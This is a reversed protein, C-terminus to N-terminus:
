SRKEIRDSKRRDPTTKAELVWRAVYEEKKKKEDETKKERALIVRTKREDEEPIDVLGFTIGNTTCVAVYKTRTLTAYTVVQSVPNFVPNFQDSRIYTLLDENEPPDSVLKARPCLVDPKIEVIVRACFQLMSMNPLTKPTSDDIPDFTPFPYQLPFEEDTASSSRMWSEIIRDVLFFQDYQPAMKVFAHQEKDTSVTTNLYKSAPYREENNFQRGMVNRLVTWVSNSLLEEVKNEFRFRRTEIDRTQLFNGELIKAVEPTTQGQLILELLSTPVGNHEVMITDAGELFTVFKAEEWRDCYEWTM